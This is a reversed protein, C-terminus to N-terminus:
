LSRVLLCDRTYTEPIRESGTSISFSKNPSKEKEVYKNIIKANKQDKSRANKQTIFDLYLM